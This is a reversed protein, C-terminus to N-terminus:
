DGEKEEEWSTVDDETGEEEDPGNSWIEVKDGHNGPSAYSFEIGWADNPVKEMYGDEPYNAPIKGSSPKTVLAELGQETTPFANNDLKYLKVAKMLESIQIGTSKINATERQRFVSVGILGALGAIIAIVVMIEILTMGRSSKLIKSFM